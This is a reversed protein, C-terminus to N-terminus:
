SPTLPPTSFLPSHLLSPPTSFLLPSPLSSPLPPSLPLSLLPLRSPLSPFYLPLPSNFPLRHLSSLLCFFSFTHIPFFSISPPFVPPLYLYICISLHLYLYLYIFLCLYLYLCLFVAFSLGSFSCILRSRQGFFSEHRLCMSEVAGGEGGRARSAARFM